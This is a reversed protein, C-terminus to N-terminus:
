ESKKLFENPNLDLYAATKSALMYPTLWISLIGLSLLSLVLWGIFSLDMLFLDMKYGSTIEKSKKLCESVSIDKEDALIYFCMSYRYAMIIGPIIFLILGGIIYVMMILYLKVAKKYNNFGYFVDKISFKEERVVKLYVYQQGLYFAPQLLINVVISLIGSIIGLVLFLVKLEEKLNKSMLDSFNFNGSFFQPISAILGVVFLVWIKGVISLKGTKKWKSIM